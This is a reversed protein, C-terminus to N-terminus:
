LLNDITLTLSNNAYEAVDKKMALATTVLKDVKLNSVLDVYTVPYEQGMRHCRDESQSRDEHSFTNSYYVALTAATLTLGKAGTAQNVVFWRYDPNSQFEDVMAQREDSKIAGTLTLTSGPWQKELAATIGAVEPLYRAWIIAKGDFDELVNMLETMKPNTPLPVGDPDFGGAIQQFRLLAELTNQVSITKDGMQTKMEKALEKCMRVQEASAKVERIQYSKEPLGKMDKKRVVDCFPRIRSFLHEVNNYGVIKRQEFGGMVCYKNRFSYYSLEGIISPDVFYMQAYLDAIGQSVNTGTLILRFAADEGLLHAKETRGASHNKISSSEDVVVMTRGRRIFELMKDFGSGQSLSEIGGVVIPFGSFKKPIQEGADLVFVEQEMNSYRDYEKSWVGKVSTPAIVLVQDILGHARRLNAIAITSVTKGAGMVHFLAFGAHPWAKRIARGQHETPTVIKLTKAPEFQLEPVQVSEGALLRIALEVEEESFNSLIAAATLRSPKARWKKTSPHFRAGCAKSRWNDAFTTNFVIWGDKIEAKITM